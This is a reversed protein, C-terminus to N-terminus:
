MYPRRRQCTPARRPRLEAGSTSHYSYSIQTRRTSRVRFGMCVLAEGTAIGDRTLPKLDAWKVPPTLTAERRWRGGAGRSGRHQRWKGLGHAWATTRITEGPAELAFLRRFGHQCQCTTTTTQECLGDLLLDPFRNELSEHRPMVARMRIFGSKM